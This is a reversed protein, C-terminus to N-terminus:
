VQVTRKRLSKQRAKARWGIFTACLISSILGIWWAGLTTQSFNWSFLIITMLHTSVVITIPRRINMLFTTLLGIFYPIVVVGIIGFDALIDRLYTGPNFPFPINYAKKFYPVYESIWGAKYLLHLLGPFTHQFLLGKEGGVALYADLVSPPGSLYVYTGLVLSHGGMNVQPGLWRTMVGPTWRFISIIMLGTVGIVFIPVFVRLRERGSAKKPITIFYASAYTLIGFVTSTRGMLGLDSFVLIALPFAGLVSPRRRAGDHIGGLTAAGLAFAGLYPVLNRKGKVVSTYLQLAFSGVGAVRGAERLLLVINLSAGIAGVLGLTLVGIKLLHLMPQTVFDKKFQSPTNHLRLLLIGQLFGLFLMGSALAIIAWTQGALGKYPFVSLRNLALVLSWVASYVSFPNFWRGSIIRGGLVSLIGLLAISDVM